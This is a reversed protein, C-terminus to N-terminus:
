HSADGTGASVLLMFAKEYFADTCTDITTSPIGCRSYTAVVSRPWLYATMPVPDIGGKVNLDDVIVLWDGLSPDAAFARFITREAPTLLEGWKSRPASDEVLSLAGTKLPSPLAVVHLRRQQPILGALALSGPQVQQSAATPGFVFTPVRIPYLSVGSSLRLENPLDSFTAAVDSTIADIAPRGSSAPAPRHALASSGCASAALVLVPVLVHRGAMIRM